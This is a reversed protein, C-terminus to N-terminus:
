AKELEELWGQVKEVMHPIGIQKYLGVAKEWYRRRRAPLIEQL